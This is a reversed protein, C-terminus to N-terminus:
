FHFVQLCFLQHLAWVSSLASFLVNDKLRMCNVGVSESMSFRYHFIVFGFVDYVDFLEEVMFFDVVGHNVEM